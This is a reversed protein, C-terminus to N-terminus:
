YLGSLGMKPCFALPEVAIKKFLLSSREDSIIMLIHQFLAEAFASIATSRARFAECIFRLCHVHAAYQSAQADSILPNLLMQEWCFAAIRAAEEDGSVEAYLVLADRWKSDVPISDLSVTGGTKVLHQVFFYENFRRHVFSFRSRPHSSCRGIRAAVLVEVIGSVAPHPYDRALEHLGIELGIDASAFMLGAIGAACDLVESASTGHEDLLDRVDDLRRNVYAAYVESQYQPLHPNPQDLYDVLLGCTFPNRALPVLDGRKGILEKITEPLVHDYAGLSAAIKRESFPRIELTCFKRASSIRPRRFVRSALVGRVPTGGFFYAEFIRSLSEVLWSSDEVDL